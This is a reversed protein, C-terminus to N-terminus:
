IYKSHLVHRNPNSANKECNNVSPPEDDEAVVTATLVVLVVIEGALVAGGNFYV